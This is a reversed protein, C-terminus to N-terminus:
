KSVRSSSKNFHINNALTDIRLISIEKYDISSNNWGCGFGELSYTVEFFSKLDEIWESCKM